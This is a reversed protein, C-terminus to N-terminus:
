RLNLPIKIIHKLTQNGLGKSSNSINTSENFICRHLSTINMTTKNFSLEICPDSKKYLSSITIFINSEPKFTTYWVKYIGSPFKKNFISLINSKINNPNNKKSM